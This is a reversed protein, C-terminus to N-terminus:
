GKGTVPDEQSAYEAGQESSELGRLQAARGQINWVNQSGVGKTDKGEQNSCRTEREEKEKGEWGGWHGLEIQDHGCQIRGSTGAENQVRGERQLLSKGRGDRPAAM